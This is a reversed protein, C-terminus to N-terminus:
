NKGCQDEVDDFFANALEDLNPSRPNELMRILMNTVKTVMTQWEVTDSFYVPEKKM